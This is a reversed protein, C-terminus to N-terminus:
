EREGRYLHASKAKAIGNANAKRGHKRRVAVACAWCSMPRRFPRTWTGRALYYETAGCTPGSCRVKVSPAGTLPHAVTGGSIMTLLGSDDALAHDRALVRLPIGDERKAGKVHKGKGKPRLRPKPELDHRGTHVLSSTIRSPASPRSTLVGSGGSPHILVRAFGHPSVDAGLDPAGLADGNAACWPHNSLYALSM